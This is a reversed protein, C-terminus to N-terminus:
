IRVIAIALFNHFILTPGAFQHLKNCTNPRSNCGGESRVGVRENGRSRSDLTTGSTKIFLSFMAMSRRGLARPREGSASAIASHLRKAPRRVLVALLM